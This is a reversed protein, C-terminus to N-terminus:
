SVEAIDTNDVEPAMFTPEELDDTSVAEPEVMYVDESIPTVDSCFLYAEKDTDEMNVLVRIKRVQTITGRRGILRPDRDSSIIEVHQGETLHVETSRQTAQTRNFHALHAGLIAMQGETLGATTVFEFASRTADDLIPLKAGAKTVKIMHAPVTNKAIKAEENESKKTARAADRLEKAAAREQDRVAKKEEKTSDKEAVAGKVVKDKKVKPAKEIKEAKETVQANGAAAKAAVRAKAAAIARDIAGQQATPVEIETLTTTETTMIETTNTTM